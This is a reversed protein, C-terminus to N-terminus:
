HQGSCFERNWSTRSCILEQAAELQIRVDPYVSTFREKMAKFPIAPSGANFIILKGHPEAYIPQSLFFQASLLLLAIFYPNFPFSVKKM